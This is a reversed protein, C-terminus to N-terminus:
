PLTLLAAAEAPELKPILALFYFEQARASEFKQYQTTIADKKATVQQTSELKQHAIVDVIVSLLKLQDM